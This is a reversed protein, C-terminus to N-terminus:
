EFWACKYIKFLWVKKEHGGKINILNAVVGLESTSIQSPKNM